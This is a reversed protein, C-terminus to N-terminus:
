GQNASNQFVFKRKPCDLCCFLAEKESKRQEQLNEVQFVGFTGSNVLSNSSFATSICDFATKLFLANKTWYIITKNSNNLLNKWQKKSCDDILM